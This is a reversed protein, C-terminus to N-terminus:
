LTAPCSISGVWKEHVRFEIGVPGVNQQMQTHPQGDVVMSLVVIVSLTMVKWGLHAWLANGPSEYQDHTSTLRVLCSTAYRFIFICVYQQICVGFLARFAALRFSKWKLKGM